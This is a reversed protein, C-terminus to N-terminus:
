WHLLRRVAVTVAATAAATWKCALALVLKQQTRGLLQMLPAVHRRRRM